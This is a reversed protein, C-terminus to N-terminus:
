TVAFKKLSEIFLESPLSSGQSKYRTARDGLIATWRVLSPVSSNPVIIERNLPGFLLDNSKKHVVLRYLNSENMPYIVVHVDNFQSTITQPDYETNNECWVIHTNDNGIHRKKYIQQPDKPDYPLLPATHYMIEYRNDCYFLHYKGNSFTNTDLKGCYWKHTQLNIIEGLSFMFSRFNDSVDEWLTGLIENQTKKGKGVYILGIKLCERNPMQFINSASLDLLPTSPFNTPRNNYGFFSSFFSSVTLLDGQTSDENQSNEFENPKYRDNENISRNNVEYTTDNTEIDLLFEDASFTRYGETLQSFQQDFETNIQVAKEPHQFCLTDDGKPFDQKMSEISSIHKISSGCNTKSFIQISKPDENFVAYLAESNNLYYESVKEFCKADTLPQNTHHLYIFLSSNIVDRIQGHLEILKSFVNRTYELERKTTIFVDVLIDLLSHFLSIESIPLFLCQSLFSEFYQFIQPNQEDINIFTSPLVALVRFSNDYNSVTRSFFSKCLDVIISSDSLDSNVLLVMLSVFINILSSNFVNEKLIVHIIKLINSLKDPWENGFFLKQTISISFCSLVAEYTYEYHYTNEFSEIICDFLSYSSFHSIAHLCIPYVIPIPYENIKQLSVQIVGLWKELIVSSICEIPVSKIVDFGTDIFHPYLLHINNPFLVDFVFRIDLTVIPSLSVQIDTLYGIFVLFERPQHPFGLLNIIFQLMNSKELNSWKPTLEIKLCQIPALKNILYEAFPVPDEFLKQAALYLVNYKDEVKMRQNKMLANKSSQVLEDRSISLFYPSFFVALYALYFDNDNQEKWQTFSNLFIPDLFDISLILLFSKKMSIEFGNVSKMIIEYSDSPYQKYLRNCLVRFLFVHKQYDIIMEEPTAMPKFCHSGISNAIMAFVQFVLEKDEIYFARIVFDAFENVEDTVRNEFYVLRDPFPAEIHIRFARSEIIMQHYLECNDVQKVSLKIFAIFCRKREEVYNSPMLEMLKWLFPLFEVTKDLFFGELVQICDGTYAYNILYKSFITVWNHDRFKRPMKTFCDLIFQWIFFNLQSSHREFQNNIDSITLYVKESISELVIKDLRSLESNVRMIRERIEKEVFVYQHSGTSFVPADSLYSRIENLETKINM